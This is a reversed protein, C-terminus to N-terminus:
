ATLVGISTGSIHRAHSSNGERLIEITKHEVRPEGALGPRDEKAAPVVEVSRNGACCTGLHACPAGTDGGGM